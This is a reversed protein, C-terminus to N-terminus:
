ASLLGPRRRWSEFLVEREALSQAKANALLSKSFQTPLNPLIGFFSRM